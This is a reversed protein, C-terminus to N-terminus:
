AAKRGLLRLIVPNLKPDGLMLEFQSLLWRRWHQERELAAIEEPTPAPTTYSPGNEYNRRCSPCYLQNSHTQQFVVTCGKCRKRMREPM